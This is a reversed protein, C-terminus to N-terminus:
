LHRKAIETWTGAPELQIYNTWFPRAKDAQGLQEYAMALNFYADAFKPDAEIAGQFLPIADKALGRELMVYGLNYQAEPQKADIELAKKYMVEAAEIDQRRFAINGLNTYAITLWPDLEVARHYLQEAEGLTNPDEDLESARLYLEYATRARDRGASPRLVRVVDSRLQQVEFDLVMQGSLPEFDGDQTRVVISRGDSVIRLEALPRTVRPLSKKLALMARSVDRLRVKSQLLSQATRLQILDAFSYARRGRRKGSPSVIGSRDLTRLRSASVGLLRSIESQTFLDTIPERNAHEDAKDNAKAAAASREPPQARGGGPGFVVHIVKQEHRNRGRRKDVKRKTM